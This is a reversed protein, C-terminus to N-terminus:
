AFLDELVASIVAIGAGILVAYLIPSSPRVILWWASGGAAGAAALVSYFAAGRLERFLYISTALFFGYMAGAGLIATTGRISFPIPGVYLLAVFAAVLAAMLFNPLVRHRRIKDHM